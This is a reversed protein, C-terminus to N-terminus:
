CEYFKIVDSTLIKFYQDDYTNRVLDREYVEKADKGFVAIKEGKLDTTIIFSDTVYINKPPIQQALILILNGVIDPMTNIEFSLSIDIPTVFLVMGKITIVVQKVESIYRIDVIDYDYDELISIVVVQFPNYGSLNNSDRKEITM